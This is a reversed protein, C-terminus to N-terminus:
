VQASHIIIIKLRSRFYKMNKIELYAEYGINHHCKQITEVENVDNKGM